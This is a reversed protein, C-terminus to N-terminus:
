LLASKFEGFKWTSKHPQAFVVTLGATQNWAGICIFAGFVGYFFHPLM